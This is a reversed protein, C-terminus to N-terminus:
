IHILSLGLIGLVGFLRLPWPIKKSLPDVLAPDAAGDEGGPQAAGGLARGPETEAM